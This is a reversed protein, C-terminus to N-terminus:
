MAEPARRVCPYATPAELLPHELDQLDRIASTTSQPASNGYLLHEIRLLRAELLSITSMYTDEITGEMKTKLKAAISNTGQERSSCM